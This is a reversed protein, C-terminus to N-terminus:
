CAQLIFMSLTWFPDQLDTTIGEFQNLALFIIEDLYIVYYAFIIRPNM